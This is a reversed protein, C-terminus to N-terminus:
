VELWIMNIWALELQMSVVMGLHRPLKCVVCCAFWVVFCVIVALLLVPSALEFAFGFLGGLRIVTIWALGLLVSVTNHLAKRRKIVNRAENTFQLQSQPKPNPTLITTFPNVRMIHVYAGCAYYACM